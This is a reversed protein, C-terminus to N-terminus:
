ETLVLLNTDDAYQSLKTNEKQNPIPYGVIKDNNKINLNIVKGNVVNLLLSLPCGQRVGRSLPFPNSLFGNNSIISLTNQYLKEIFKIFIESYGLKRMIQYLFERDVKDFAKEQDISIIFSNINKTNSHNIIERITFLNSFISRNPIGCTQEISITHELTPKLRNSLIKTLVKYDSCLLSIPRWNKLNAKKDHKPLLITITQNM